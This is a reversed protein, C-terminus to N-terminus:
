PGCPIPILRWSAGPTAKNKIQLVNGGSKKKAMASCLVPEQVCVVAGGGGICATLHAVIILKAMPAGAGRADFYKGEARPGGRDVGADQLLSAGGRRSVSSATGSPWWSAAWRTGGDTSPTAARGWVPLTGGYGLEERGHQPPWLWRDGINPGSPGTTTRHWRGRGADRLLFM